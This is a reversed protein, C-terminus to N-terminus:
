KESETEGKKHTLSHSRHVFVMCQWGQGGDLGQSASGAFAQCEGGRQGVGRGSDWGRRGEGGGGGREAEGVGVGGGGAGCRGLGEECVGGGVAEPGWHGRRVLIVEGAETPEM